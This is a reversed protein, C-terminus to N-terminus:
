TLSSYSIYQFLLLNMTDTQILVIEELTQILGGGKGRRTGEGKGVVEEDERRMEGERKGRMKEEENKM